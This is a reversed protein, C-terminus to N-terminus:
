LHRTKYGHQTQIQTIELHQPEPTPNEKHIKSIPIPLNSHARLHEPLGDIEIEENEIKQQISKEILKATKNDPFCSRYM